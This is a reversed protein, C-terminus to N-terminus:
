LYGIGPPGFPLAAHVPFPIGPLDALRVLVVEGVKNVQCESRGSNRLQGSASGSIRDANPGSSRALKLISPMRCNM